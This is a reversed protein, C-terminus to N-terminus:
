FNLRKQSKRQRLETREKVVNSTPLLTTPLLTQPPEEKQKPQVYYPLCLIVSGFITLIAQIWLCNQVLSTSVYMLAFFNSAVSVCMLAGILSYEDSQAMFIIIPMAVLPPSVWVTWSSNLMLSVNAVIVFPFAWSFLIVLRQMSSAIYHPIRLILYVNWTQYLEVLLQLGILFIVVISGPITHVCGSHDICRMTAVVSLALVTMDVISAVILLASAIYWAIKSPVITCLMLLGYLIYNIELLGSAKHVSDSVFNKGIRIGISIGVSLVIRLRINNQLTISSM